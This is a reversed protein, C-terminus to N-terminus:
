KISTSIKLIADKNIEHAGDFYLDKVNIGQSRLLELNEQFNNRQFSGTM